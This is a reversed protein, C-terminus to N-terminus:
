KQLLFNYLKCVCLEKKWNYVGPMHTKNRFIWNNSKARKEINKLQQKMYM